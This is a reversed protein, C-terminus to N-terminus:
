MGYWDRLGKVLKGFAEDFRRPNSFDLINYDRIQLMLPGSWTATRWADDLSIPCMLDIKEAKERQRALDVEWEVWDSGASNESFILLLADAKAIEAELQSQTRGASLSHVDRVVELGEVELRNEIKEAFQDDRRSYSIFIRKAAM